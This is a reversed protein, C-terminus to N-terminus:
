ATNCAELPDSCSVLLAPLAMMSLGHAKNALQMSYAIVQLTCLMALMTEVHVIDPNEQIRCHNNVALCLQPLQWLVGVCHICKM